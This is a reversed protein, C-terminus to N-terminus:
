FHKIVCDYWIPILSHGIYPRPHQRSTVPAPLCCCQVCGSAGGCRWKWCWVNLDYTNCTIHGLDLNNEGFILHQSNYINSNIMPWPCRPETYAELGLEQRQGWHICGYRSISIGDPCVVIVHCNYKQFVIFHNIHSYFWSVEGEAWIILAPLHKM